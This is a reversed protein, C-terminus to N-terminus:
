QTPEAMIVSIPTNTAPVASVWAQVDTMKACQSLDSSANSIGDARAHFFWLVLLCLWLAVANRTDSRISM